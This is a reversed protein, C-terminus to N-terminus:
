LARPNIQMGCETCFNGTVPTGCNECYKPMPPALPQTTSEILEEPEEEPISLPNDTAPPIECSSCNASYIGNDNLLEVAVDENRGSTPTNTAANAEDRNAGVDENNSDNDIIPMIKLIRDRDIIGAISVDDGSGKLSLRPLYDELEYCASEYESEAFSKGITSYLKYLQEDRIFSDDIGDSGCFIAAPIETSFCHRFDEIANEDCISTTSNLFCKENPPIPQDFSGSENMRVAKGDGIQLGFWFSNTWVLAILTTGYTSEISKRSLIRARRSDSVSNLEEETFPNADFHEWVTENWKAIISKELQLLLREPDSPVRTLDLDQMFESICASAAQAAFRSGYASRFYNDGGHGDCVIAMAYDDTTQSLSFDQCEKGVRIHSAGISTLNFALQKM